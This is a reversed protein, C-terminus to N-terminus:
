GVDEIERGVLDKVSREFMTKAWKSTCMGPHRKIMASIQEQWIADLEKMEYKKAPDVASDAQEALSKDSDSVYLMHHLKRHAINYYVRATVVGMDLQKSIEIFSLGDGDHLDMVEKERATLNMPVGHASSYQCLVRYIHHEVCFFLFACPNQSEKEMREAKQLVRWLRLLVDQAIDDHYPSFNDYKSLLTMIMPKCAALLAELDKTDATAVFKAFLANIQNKEYM